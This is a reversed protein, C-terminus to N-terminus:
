PIKIRRWTEFNTDRFLTHYKKSFCNRLNWKLEMMFMVFLEKFTKILLYTLLLYRNVIVIHEM